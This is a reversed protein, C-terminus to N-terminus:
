ITVTLGHQVDGILVRALVKPNTVHMLGQYVRKETYGDNSAAYRSQKTTLRGSWGTIRPSDESGDKGYMVVGPWLASVVFNLSPAKSLRFTLYGFQVAPAM